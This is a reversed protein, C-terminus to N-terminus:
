SPGSIMMCIPPYVVACTCLLCLALSKRWDDSNPGEVGEGRFHTQAREKTGPSPSVSAQPLTPPPRPTGLESSPVSM